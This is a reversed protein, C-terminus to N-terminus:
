SAVAFTLADVARLKAEAEPDAVEQFQVLGAAEDPESADAALLRVSWAWGAGARPEVALRRGEGLASQSGGRPGQWQVDIAMAALYCPPSSLTM